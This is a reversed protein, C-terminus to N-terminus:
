IHAIISRDQNKQAILVIKQLCDAPIYGFAFMISISRLVRVPFIPMQSYELVLVQSAPPLLDQLYESVINAEPISFADTSSSPDSEQASFFQPNKMGANVLIAPLIEKFSCADIMRILKEISSKFQVCITPM